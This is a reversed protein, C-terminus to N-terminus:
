EYECSWRLWGREMGEGTDVLVALRTCRLAATLRDGVRGEETELDGMSRGLGAPVYTHCIIQHGLILDSWAAPVMHMFGPQLLGARGGCGYQPQVHAASAFARYTWTSTETHGLERLAVATDALM